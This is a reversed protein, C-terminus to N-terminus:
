RIVEPIKDRRQKRIGIGHLLLGSPHKMVYQMIIPGKCYTGYVPEELLCELRKGTLDSLESGILHLQVLIRKNRFTHVPNQIGKRFIVRIHQGPKSIIDKLLYFLASAVTCICVQHSHCQTELGLLTLLYHFTGTKILIGNTRLLIEQLDPLATAFYHIRESISDPVPCPLSQCHQCFGSYINRVAVSAEQFTQRRIRGKIVMLGYLARRGREHGLCRVMLLPKGLCLGPLQQRQYIREQFSRKLIEKCEPVLIISHVIRCTNKVTLYVSQTHCTFQCPGVLLYHPLLIDEAYIVGIGDQFADYVARVCREYIFLCTHTIIMEQQILELVSGTYLPGIEAGQQVVAICLASLIQYDSIDLLAYVAPAARVPFQKILHHRLFEGSM